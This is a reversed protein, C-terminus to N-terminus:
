PLRFWEVWEEGRRSTYIARRGGPYVWYQAVGAAAIEAMFEGYSIQERQVRLLARRVGNGDFADAVQYSGFEVGEVHSEGSPMYYTKEERYLDAHYSELGIEGLKQLVQPVRLKGQVFGVSCEAMVAVTFIGSLIVRGM